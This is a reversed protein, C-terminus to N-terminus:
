RSLEGNINVGLSDQLVSALWVGCFYGEAAQVQTM